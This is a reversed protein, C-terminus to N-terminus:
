IAAKEEAEKKRKRKEEMKAFEEHLHEVLDLTDKSELVGKVADVVDRKKEMTLKPFARVVASINKLTM